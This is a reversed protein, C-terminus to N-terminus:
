APGCRVQQFLWVAFLVLIVLIVLSILAWYGTMLGMFQGMMNNASDMM